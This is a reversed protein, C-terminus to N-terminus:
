KFSVAINPRLICLTLPKWWSPNVETLHIKPDRYPGSLVLFSLRLCFPNILSLFFASPYFEPMINQPFYASHFFLSGLTCTVWFIFTQCYGNNAIIYSYLNEHVAPPYTFSCLWKPSSNSMVYYCHVQTSGAIGSRPIYRPSVRPCADWPM